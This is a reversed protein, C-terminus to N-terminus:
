NKTTYGNLNFYIKKLQFNKKIINKKSFIM